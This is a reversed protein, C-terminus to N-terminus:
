VAHSHLRSKAGEFYRRPNDIVIRDLDARAVGMGELGPFINEFIHTLKWNPMAARLDAESTPGPSGMWCNVSDHSVMVRELHGNDLLAKLNRMRIEDAIELEAGFRDFGVYAGREALSRQYAPNDTGCCHGVLLNASDLGEGTVIDIQEHGCTARETHSLIPTGTAQAARAAAAIVKMEYDTVKGEGTAVKIIGCKIGTEAVGREIEAVFSEAIQDVSMAAYTFPIGILETYAGTACILNIGSAQSVEAIFEVDRGLDNPCPDVVTKVGHDHLGQFAEVVRSLAEKRRFPPQRADMFWGPFGILVHEHMLTKGLESIALPGLVSNVMM